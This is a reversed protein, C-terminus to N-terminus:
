RGSLQLVAGALRRVGEAIEEEAVYSFCLRVHRRVSDEDGLAPTACSQPGAMVSVRHEERALAALETADCGQPLRLWLFYGGTPEAWSWDVGAAQHQRLASLLLGCRRQLTPRLWALHAAQAGSELCSLVLRSAVHSVAGGGSVVWGRQCLANVTAPSAEIWGVRLAPALAKAFSNLSVVVNGATAPLNASDATSPEVPPRDFHRMRPPMGQAWSLLQYVEDALLFFGYRRALEVLRIRDSSPLTACTPNAHTPVFYFCRPRLGAELRAQLDDLNLEAGPLEVLTLGHDRLVKSSLFYTPRQVLVTDGPSTLVSLALDLGHSVGQTLFLSSSSVEEHFTKSLFSALVSLVRADGQEDGYSLSFSSGDSESEALSSAERLAAALSAAPLLSPAPHGVALNLTGPAARAIPNFVGAAASTHM